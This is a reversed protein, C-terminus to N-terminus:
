WVMFYRLDSLTNHKFWNCNLDGYAIYLNNNSIFEESLVNLLDCLISETTSLYSIYWMRPKAIIEFTLYDIGHYLGSFQKLLRHPINDNIYMMIGGGKDNRDQRYLKYNNVQFQGDFFSADIKTEAIGLIDVFNGHLIHQLESFKYRISNINYHSIM